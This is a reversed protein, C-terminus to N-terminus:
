VLWVPTALWQLATPSTLPPLWSAHLALFLMDPIATLVPELPSTAPRASPTLPLATALKPWITAPHATQAYKEMLNSVTLTTTKPLFSLLSWANDMTSLMGMMAAPVPVEVM